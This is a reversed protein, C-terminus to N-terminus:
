NLISDIQDQSLNETEIYEIKPNNEQCSLFGIIILTVIIPKM